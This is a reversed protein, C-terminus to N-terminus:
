TFRAERIIQIVGQPCAAAADEARGELHSPVDEREIYVVGDEDHKFIEPCRDQCARYSCCLTRDIQVRM